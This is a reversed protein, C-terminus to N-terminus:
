LKLERYRDFCAFIEQVRPRALFPVGARDECLAEPGKRELLDELAAAVESLTRRGDLLHRQAYILCHALAATQEGDLLQEM